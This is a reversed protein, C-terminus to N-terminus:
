AHNNCYGQHITAEALCTMAFAGTQLKGILQIHCFYSLRHTVPQDLVEVNNM